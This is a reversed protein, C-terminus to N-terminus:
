KASAKIRVAVNSRRPDAAVPLASRGNGGWGAGGAEGPEGNSIPPKNIPPKSPPAADSLKLAGERPRVAVVDASNLARQIEAQAARLKVPDNKVIATALDRFLNNREVNRAWDRVRPLDVSNI